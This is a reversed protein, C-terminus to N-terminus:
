LGRHEKIGKIGQFKQEKDFNKQQKILLNVDSEPGRKGVNVDVIESLRKEKGKIEFLLGATDMGVIQAIEKGEEDKIRQGVLGSIQAGLSRGSLKINEPQLDNNDIFRVMDESVSNLNGIAWPSWFIGFNKEM